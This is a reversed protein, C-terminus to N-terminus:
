FFMEFRAFTAKAGQVGAKTQTDSYDLTMLVNKMIANQYVLEWAETDNALGTGGKGAFTQFGADKSKFLIAYAQDGKDAKDVFAGVNGTFVQSMNGNTLQVFYAEPDGAVDSNTAYEALLSVKKKGLKGLEVKTGVSWIDEGNDKDSLLSASLDVKSGLKVWGNIATVDRKDYGIDGTSYTVAPLVGAGDPDVTATGAKKNKQQGYYAALNWDKGTTKAMVGDLFEPNASTLMGRGLLFNQRGVTWNLNAVDKVDFYLRDVDFYQDSTAQTDGVTYEIRINGTVQDNVKGSLMLRQRAYTTTDDKTTTNDTYTSQLRSEATIKLNTTNKELAAVRVGLNKLEVGFEKSLKDMMAKDAPKATDYKTMAKAVIQAMEYRTITKDGKFTGDGYGDVIGAAALKSVSDYAWHKAPVDVFPNAFAPAAVALTLSALIAAALTKKM